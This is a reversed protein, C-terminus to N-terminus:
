PGSIRVWAPAAGPPGPLDPEASVGALLTADEDPYLCEKADELRFEDLRVDNVHPLVYLRFLQEDRDASRKERVHDPYKKALAGSYWIRAAFGDALKRLEGTAERAM